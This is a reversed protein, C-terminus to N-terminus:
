AVANNTVEEIIRFITDTEDAEFVGSIGMDNIDTFPSEYLMEPNIIGNVHLHEIINDIFRIQDPSLSGKSLFVSFADKAAKIDLGVISRIFIGLPKDGVEKVFDSKTGREEGDFLIRELENLEARTIPLNTKLKRITLHNQNERIYREVRLIYNKMKSHGYVLDHEKVVGTHEDEFDTYVISRKDKDIFKVLERM